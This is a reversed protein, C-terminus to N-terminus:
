IFSPASINVTSFQVVQDFQQQGAELMADL